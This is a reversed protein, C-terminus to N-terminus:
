VDRYSMCPDPSTLLHLLSSWLLCSIHSRLVKRVLSPMGNVTSVLYRQNSVHHMMSYLFCIMQVMALNLSPNLIKWFFLVSVTNFSANSPYTPYTLGFLLSSLNPSECYPLRLMFTLTVATARQITVATARRIEGSVRWIKQWFVCFSWHQFNAAHYFLELLGQM